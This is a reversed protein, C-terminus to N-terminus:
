GCSYSIEKHKLVTFGSTLYMWFYTVTFASSPSTERTDAIAIVGTATDMINLPSAKM